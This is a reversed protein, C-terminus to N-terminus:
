TPDTRRPGSQYPTKEGVLTEGLFIAAIGLAFPCAFPHIPIKGPAFSFLLCELDIPFVVDDDAPIIQDTEVQPAERLIQADTM